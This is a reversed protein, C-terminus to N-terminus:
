KKKTSDPLRFLSANLSPNIKLKELDLVLNMRGSPTECEVRGPLWLGAVERYDQFRIKLVPRSPEKWLLQTLVKKAQDIRLEGEEAEYTLQDGSRGVQVKPNDFRNVLDGSLFDGFVHLWQAQDDLSELEKPLWQLGAPNKVLLAQPTFFPGMIEFRFLQPREYYFLGHAEFSEGHSQGDMRMFGALSQVKRFNGEVRKLIVRPASSPLAASGGTEELRKQLGRNEPSFLLAEQWAQVAQQTKGTKVLV